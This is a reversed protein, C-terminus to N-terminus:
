CRLAARAEYATGADEWSLAMAACCANCWRYSALEGDFIATMSRTRTGPQIQQGCLHCEGAKRATVMKDRLTRDNPSGFDGEFPNCALVDAEDLRDIRQCVSLGALEPEIIDASPEIIKM